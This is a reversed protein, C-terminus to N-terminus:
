GSTFPLHFPMVMEDWWSQVGGCVCIWVEVGWPVGYGETHVIFPCVKELLNLCRVSQWSRVFVIFDSGYYVRSACGHWTIHTCTYVNCCVLKCVGAGAWCIALDTDAAIGRGAMIYNHLHESLLFSCNYHARGTIVKDTDALRSGESALGIGGLSHLSGRPTEPFSQLFMWWRSLVIKFM